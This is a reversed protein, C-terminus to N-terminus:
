DCACEDSLEMFWARWYEHEPHEKEAMAKTIKIDKPHIFVDKSVDDTAVMTVDSTLITVTLGEKKAEKEYKLLQCFNCIAM